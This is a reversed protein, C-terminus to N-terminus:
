SEILKFITKFFSGQENDRNVITKANNKPAKKGGGGKRTNIKIRGDM